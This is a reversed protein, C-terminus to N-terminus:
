SPAPAPRCSSRRGGHGRRQRPSRAAGPRPVPQATRSRRPRPLDDQQPVLQTRHRQRDDPRAGADRGAKRTLMHVAAKSAGYSFNDTRSIVLGDVSGINIVRAPDSEAAAKRLGPLLAQTLAFVGKINIDFIKDFGSGPFEDIPAGWAAGANNVLVDVRTGNRGDSRVPERDGGTDVSGGSTGSLDGTRAGVVGGGRGCVAGGQPLLDGGDCRGRRLRARDDPRDRAVWRHRRRDAVSM